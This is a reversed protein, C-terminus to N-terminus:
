MEALKSNQIQPGIDRTCVAINCLHVVKEEEQKKKKERKTQSLEHVNFRQTCNQALRPTSDTIPAQPFKQL